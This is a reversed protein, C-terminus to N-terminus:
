RGKPDPTPLFRRQAQEARQRLEEIKELLKSTESSSLATSDCLEDLDKRQRRLTEAIAHFEAM